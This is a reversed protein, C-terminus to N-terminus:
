INKLISRLRLINIPKQILYDGGFMQIDKESILEPYGTIVAIPMNRNKKRMLTLLEVSSKEDLMFDTILLDPKLNETKEIAESTSRASIMNMNEKEFFIEFSKLINEDDDVVLVTKTKPVKSISLPSRRGSKTKQM